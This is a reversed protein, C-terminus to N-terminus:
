GRAAIVADFAAAVAGYPPTAGSFLAFADCAQHVCLERGTMVRCGRDRAALLLPTWLPNYVADAVWLDPRLLDAALPLDRNPLMGIPTGNILGAAGDLADAADRAVVVRARGALSAALAEASARDSDLVRLEVAGRAALAFAAARGVGGAGILAVPRDLAGGVVEDFARGFGTSDTNHGTLRGDSAVITNVAGMADIGPALADLFPLVAAKYPFTVNMGGFGFARVADLLARLRTADAGPVDILQYHVRFGTADGAARHMAPAASHKIPSGLLGLLLPRAEVGATM